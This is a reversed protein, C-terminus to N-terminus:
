RALWDMAQSLMWSAVQIAVWALTVRVYMRVSEASPVTKVQM